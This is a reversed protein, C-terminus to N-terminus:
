RADPASRRPPFERAAIIQHQQLIRAPARLAIQSSASLKLMRRREVRAQTSIWPRLTLKGANAPCRTPAVERKKPCARRQEKDSADPAGGQGARRRSQPPRRANTNCSIVWVDYLPHEMRTSAPAPPMCGAPFSGSRARTPATITSRCLPRPKRRRAPAAHFLLLAGHHHPHRFAGAQRDPAVINTPRGTIKDLGRLLLTMPGAPQLPQSAAGAHPHQATPAACAAHPQADASPLQRRRWPPPRFGASLSLAFSDHRRRRRHRRQQAHRRQSHAPPAPQQGNGGGIFRGVLNMLDISGQANDIMGGPPLMRTTAARAHHVSLGGLMGASTVLLSSDAPIKIDDRINMHVTVLYTKPDLTLDSVIGIKIGALRVDTGIGLGDVKPMRANVEYGSLSGSGTRTYAFVLFIVAVAVVIAGIVTEAVNNQGCPRKGPASM